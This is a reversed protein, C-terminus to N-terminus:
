DPDLTVGILDPAILVVHIERDPACPGHPIEEHTLSHITLPYFDLSEPFSSGDCRVICLLPSLFVPSNFECDEPRLFRVRRPPV